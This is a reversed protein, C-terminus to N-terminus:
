KEYVRSRSDSSFFDPTSSNIMSLRIAINTKFIRSNYIELNKRIRIGGTYCSLILIESIKFYRGWLMQSKFCINGHSETFM